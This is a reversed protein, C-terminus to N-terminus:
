LWRFWARKFLIILINRTSVLVPGHCFLNISAAPNCTNSHAGRVETIVVPDVSTHKKSDVGRFRVLWYCGCSISTCKRTGSNVFSSTRSARNCTISKGSRTTVFCWELGFRRCLDKLDVLLSIDGVKFVRCSAEEVSEDVIRFSSVPFPFLKGTDACYLKPPLKVAM